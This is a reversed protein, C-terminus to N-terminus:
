ITENKAVPVSWVNDNDKVRVIIQYTGQSPFIITQKNKNVEITKGLFTYEYRTINGGFNSDDDFSGSADVLREFPGANEPRSVEILNEFVSLEITLVATEEFADVLTLEIIHNGLSSPDYGINVATNSIAVSNKIPTSGIFFSGNGSLVDFRIESLNDNIDIFDANVRYMGQSTKLSDILSTIIDGDVAFHPADNLSDISDQRSDCAAWVMVVLFGIVIQKM